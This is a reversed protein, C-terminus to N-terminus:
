VPGLWTNWEDQTLPLHFSMTPIGFTEPSRFNQGLSRVVMFRSATFFWVSGIIVMIYSNWTCFQIMKPPPIFTDTKMPISRVSIWWRPYELLAGACLGWVFMLVAQLSLHHKSWWLQVSCCHFNIRHLSSGLNVSNRDSPHTRSHWNDSSRRGVTHM